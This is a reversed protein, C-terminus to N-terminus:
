GGNKFRINRLRLKGKGSLELGLYAKNQFRFSRYAIHTGDRINDIFVGDPGSNIFPNKYRKNFGSNKAFYPKKGYLSSCIQAPYIGDALLAGLPSSTMRSQIINGNIDFCVKELCAQRSYSTNHTQRHYFVFYQGNICEISGHNNGLPFAPNKLTRNDIGVDGNSIIRGQFKYGKNPCKSMAYCLEHNHWSSYIFYYIGNIKRISNAEFFPHEKFEDKEQAQTITEFIESDITLMDDKLVCNFAGMKIDKSKFMKLSIRDIIFKPLHYIEWPYYAGFYLRIIGDDDLLAPDFNIYEGILINGNRDKVHGYFHFGRDPYDSVAVSIPQNYGDAGKYGALCYYLYYRGDKGKVCDPAYGSYGEKFYPDERFHYAVGPSTWNSLDDIPASFVEYELLCFSDGREKDHSGYLYIRNGFVRPEGDPIYKDLPLFPNYCTAKHM